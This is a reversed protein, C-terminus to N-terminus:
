QLAVQRNRIVILRSPPQILNARLMRQGGRTLCNFKRALTQRTTFDRHNIILDLHLVSTWDIVLTHELVHVKLLLSRSRIQCLGKANLHTILANLSSFALYLSDQSHLADQHQSEQYIALGKTENFVSRKQRSVKCELFAERLKNCLINNQMTESFLLEKPHCQLLLSMTHLYTVKDSYQCLRVEGSIENFAAM